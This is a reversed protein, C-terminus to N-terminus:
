FSSVAPVLSSHSFLRLSQFIRVPILAHSVEWEKEEKMEKYEKMRIGAARKREGRGECDRQKKSSSNDGGDRQWIRVRKQKSQAILQSCGLFRFVSSCLTIHPSLLRLDLCLCLISDLRTFLAFLLSLTLSLLLPICTVQLVRSSVCSRFCMM